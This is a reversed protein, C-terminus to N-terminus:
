LGSFESSYCFGTFDLIWFKKKTGTKGVTGQFSWLRYQWIGCPIRAKMRTLLGYTVDDAINPQHALFDIKSFIRISGLILKNSFNNLCIKSPDEISVIQFGVIKSIIHQTAPDITLLGYTM